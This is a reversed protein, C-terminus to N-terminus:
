VIVKKWVLNYRWMKQNSMMLKATFMGQGFLVIAGNDKIIRKYEQWLADFPIQSDWKADQNNSNLIGYPLDCLIMDVSQDEIKQMLTLCDGNYLTIM